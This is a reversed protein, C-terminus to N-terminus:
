LLYLTVEIDLFTLVTWMRVAAVLRSGLALGVADAYLTVEVLFLLFKLLRFMEFLQGPCVVLYFRFVTLDLVPM